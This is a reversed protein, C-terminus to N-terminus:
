NFIENAERVEEATLGRVAKVPAAKSDTTTAKTTKKTTKVTTKKKTTKKEAM